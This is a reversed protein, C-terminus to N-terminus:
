VVNTKKESESKNTSKVKSRFRVCRLILKNRTTTPKRIRKNKRMTEEKTRREKGKEKNPQDSRLEASVLQVLIHSM